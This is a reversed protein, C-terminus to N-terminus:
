FGGKSACEPGIGAEISSPVTLKRGCMGCKGAHWIEVDENMHGADLMALVWMFAVASPADLQVRSGRTNVFKYHNNITTAEDRMSDAISGPPPDDISRESVLVPVLMGMYQYSRENDPGNLLSVFFRGNKHCSCSGHCKAFGLHNKQNCLDCHVRSVKYTFRTGTKRSVFTVTANGALLFKLAIAASTLQAGVPTTLTESM